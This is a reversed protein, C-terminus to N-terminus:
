AEDGAGQRGHPEDDTCGRGVQGRMSCRVPGGVEGRMIAQVEGVPGFLAMPPESAIAALRSDADAPVQPGVAPLREPGGRQLPDTDHHLRLEQNRLVQSRPSKDAEQALM